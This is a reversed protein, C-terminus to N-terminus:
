TKELFQRIRQAAVICEDVPAVLSIRVRRKGPNGAETDRALYSGPLITLNQAAFLERTFAEDDRQVDPWLYFGGDPEVVDLVPELIPLMRAFKERYLARNAAAHADDNWAAISALQTPVPMACGHYTRYLLYSKILQPDGAVFGSRLGPVSSRKSLSHFVMCRQFRDHGQVFAAQLLSPPPAADDRYLEAYCEDAAIVFDHREALELAHRLFDLSLVAGTPNGPSCLFLVQCRRWIEAPVADLDPQFRDAAMTNLFFPEAGALLAAGEYIQYFPNPMAVLPRAAGRTSVVAQVFSFLAERTGTVPLVMGEATVRVGFRRGLWAACAARTEPLGVTAPYSDLKGLNQRLAEIVFAPPAHRPEGISMAIHPLDAPPTRGAKLRALREFPYATLRELRENM